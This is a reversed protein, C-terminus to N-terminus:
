DNTYMGHIFILASNVDANFLSENRQIGHNRWRKLISKYRSKTKDRWSNHIIEKVKNPLQTTGIAERIFSCWCTSSRIYHNYNERDTPLTLTRKMMPLMVPYDALVQIMFYLWNKIGWWPKGHTKINGGQHIKYICRIIMSFPPSAHM